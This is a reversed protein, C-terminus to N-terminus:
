IMHVYLLILDIFEYLAPSRGPETAALLADVGLVLFAFKSRTFTKFAEKVCAAEFFEVHEDLVAAGVEAHVRLV